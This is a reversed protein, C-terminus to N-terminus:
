KWAMYSIDALWLPPSTRFCRNMQSTHRKQVLSGPFGGRDKKKSTELLPYFHFLDRKSRSNNERQEAHSTTRLNAFALRRRWDNRLALQSVAPM